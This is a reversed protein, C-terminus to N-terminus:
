SYPLRPCDPAHLWRLAEAETGIRRVASSTAADSVQEFSARSGFGRRVWASSSPPTSPDSRSLRVRSPTRAGERSGGRRNGVGERDWLM